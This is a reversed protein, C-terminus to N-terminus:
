KLKLTAALNRQGTGEVLGERPNGTPYILHISQIRTAPPALPEVVMTSTNAATTTHQPQEQSMVLGNYTFIPVFFLM